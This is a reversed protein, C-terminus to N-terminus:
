AAEEEIKPSKPSSPEKNDPADGNEDTHDDSKPKSIDNSNNAQKDDSKSDDKTEEAQAEGEKGEEAKNKNRNLFDEILKKQQNENGMFSYAGAKSQNTSEQSIPEENVDDKIEVIKPEAAEQLFKRQEKVAVELPDEHMDPVKNGTIMQFLTHKHLKQLQLINKHWDEDTEMLSLYAKLATRNPKEGEIIPFGLRKYVETKVEPLSCEKIIEGFEDDSIDKVGDEKMKKQIKNYM